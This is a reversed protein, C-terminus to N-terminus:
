CTGDAACTIVQGPISEPGVYTVVQGPMSEPGVHPIVQRSAQVSQGKVPSPCGWGAAAAVAVAVPAAAAAPAATTCRRFRSDLQAAAVM